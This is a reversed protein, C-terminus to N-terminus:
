NQLHFITIYNIFNFNVKRCIRYIEQIDDRTYNYNSPSTRYVIMHIIIVCGCLTRVNTENDCINQYLSGVLDMFHDNNIYTMKIITERLLGRLERNIINTHNYYRKEVQQCMSSLTHDISKHHIFYSSVSNICSLVSDKQIKKEFFHIVQKITPRKFSEPNCMLIIFKNLEAYLESSFKKKEYGKKWRKIESFYDETTNQLDFLLTQYVIEYFTCGLAWIDASFGWTNTLWVEPPRHTATYMKVTSHFQQVYGEIIYTSLGFDNLKPNNDYVLINSAKIDGHIMRRSHLHGVSLSIRYLFLYIDQVSNLQPMERCTGIAKDFFLQCKHSTICSFKANNIYPSNFTTSIFAEAFFSNLRLLYTDKYTSIEKLIYKKSEFDQCIEKDTSSLDILVEFIGTYSTDERYRIIPQLYMVNKVHFSFDEKKM